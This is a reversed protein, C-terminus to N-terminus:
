WRVSLQVSWRWIKKKQQWKSPFLTLSCGLQHKDGCQKYDVSMVDPPSFDCKEANHIFPYNIGMLSGSQCFFAEAADQEFCRHDQKEETLLPKCSTNTILNIGDKKMADTVGDGKERTGCHLTQWWWRPCWFWVSQFRLRCWFHACLKNKRESSKLYCCGSSATYTTIYFFFFM